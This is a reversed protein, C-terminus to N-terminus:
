LHHTLYVDFRSNKMAIDHSPKKGGLHEAGKPRKVVVRNTAINLAAALLEDSDLDDGVIDRIMRMEKKNLASKASHPYMPDLYITFPPPAISQLAILSDCPILEMRTGVIAGIAPDAKARAMGDALLAAIVKSREHMFVQCGLCALVFSDSGLGATADLIVPRFGSRIGVARALPQKITCNRAHRYAVSGSLFDVSIPNFISRGETYCPNPGLELRNDTLTLIYRASSEGPLYFPLGLYKALELAKVLITESLSTCSVSVSPFIEM